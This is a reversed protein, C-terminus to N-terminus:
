PTIRSTAGDWSDHPTGGEPEEPTSTFLVTSVGSFAWLVTGGVGHSGGQTDDKNSRHMDRVLATYNSEDADEAGSLGETNEDEITLLILEDTDNELFQRISVDQEETAAGELHTRFQEDWRFASNFEELGDGATLQRFRSTVRVPEGEDVPGAENANQLVERVFTEVDADFAHKTPIDGQRSNKQNSRDFYWECTM